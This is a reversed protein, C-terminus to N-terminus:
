KSTGLWQMLFLEFIQLLIKTRQVKQNPVCIQFMYQNKELTGKVNNPKIIKWHLVQTPIIQNHIKL